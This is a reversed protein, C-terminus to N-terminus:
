CTVGASAPTEPCSPVAPRASIGAKAPIVHDWCFGRETRPRFPVTANRFHRQERVTPLNAIAFDLLRLPAEVADLDEDLDVDLERDSSLVISLSALAAILRSISAAPSAAAAAAILALGAARRLIRSAPRSAASVACCAALVMTELADRRPESIASATASAACRTSEPLHVSPSLPPDLPPSDELPDLPPRDDEERERLEREVPVRLVAERALEEREVEPALLDPLLLRAFDDPAAALREDPAADLLPVVARLDLLAPRVARLDVVLRLEPERERVLERRPPVLPPPSPPPPSPPPWPQATITM